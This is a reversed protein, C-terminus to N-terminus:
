TTRRITILRLATLHSCTDRRIKATKTEASERAAKGAVTERATMGRGRDRLRTREAPGGTM